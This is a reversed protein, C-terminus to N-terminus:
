LMKNIYVDPDNFRDNVPKELRSSGGSMQFTHVHGPDSDEKATYKICGLFWFGRLAGM